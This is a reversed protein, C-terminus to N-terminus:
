EVTLAANRGSLSTGLPLGRLPVNGSSSRSPKSHLKPCLWSRMNLFQRPRDNLKMNRYEIYIYKKKGVSCVFVLHFLFSLCVM